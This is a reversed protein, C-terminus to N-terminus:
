QNDPTAQTSDLAPDLTTSTLQTRYVVEANGSVLAPDATASSQMVAIGTTVDIQVNVYLIGSGPAAPMALPSGSVNLTAGNLATVTGGILLNGANGDPVELDLDWFNTAGLVGSTVSATLPM